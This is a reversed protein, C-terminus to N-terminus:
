RLGPEFFYIVLHYGAVIVMMGLLLLWDLVQHRVTWREDEIDFSRQRDDETISLTYRREEEREPPRGGM